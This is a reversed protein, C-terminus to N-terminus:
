FRRLEREACYSNPLIPGGATADQTALYGDGNGDDYLQQRTKGKQNPLLAAASLAPQNNNATVAVRPDFRGAGTGVFPRGNIVVRTPLTEDGPMLNDYDLILDGLGNGSEFAADPCDLPMLTLKHTVDSAAVFVQHDVIRGTIGTAVGSVFSLLQGNFRGPATGLNAIPVRSGTLVDNGFINENLSDVTVTGPSQYLDINPGILEVRIFQRNPQPAPNFGPEILLTEVNKVYSTLGYGYMDALISHGRLPLISM